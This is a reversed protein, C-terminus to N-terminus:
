TSKLQNERVSACISLAAQVARSNLGSQRHHAVICLIWIATYFVIIEKSHGIQSQLIWRTSSFALFPISFLLSRLLSLLGFQFDIERQIRVSGFQWVNAVADDTRRGSYLELLKHLPPYKIGLRLMKLLLGTVRHFVIGFVYSVGIATISLYPLLEKLSIIAHIDQKPHPPLVLFILAALYVFGAM